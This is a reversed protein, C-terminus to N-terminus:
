EDDNLVQLCTSCVREFEDLAANTRDSLRLALEIAGGDAGQTTLDKLDHEDRADAAANLANWAHVFTNALGSHGHAKLAQVIRTTRAESDATDSAGFPQGTTSEWAAAEARVRATREAAYDLEARARELLQAERRAM